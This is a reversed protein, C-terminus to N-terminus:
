NSIVVFSIDKDSTNIVEIELSSRDATPLDFVMYRTDRGKNVDKTDNYWVDHTKDHIRLTVKGGPEAVVAIEQHERSVFSFKSSSKAAVTRTTAYVESASSAVGREASRNAYRQACRYVERGAILSDAFEYDFVFHGDLSVPNEDLQRLSKFHKPNCTKLANSATRLEANSGSGIAAQMQTCADFAAQVPASLEQAIAIGFFSQLMIFSFTIIAKKM